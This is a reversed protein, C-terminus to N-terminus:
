LDVEAIAAVLATTVTVDIRPRLAGLRHALLRDLRHECEQVPMRHAREIDGTTRGLHVGLKTTQRALTPTPASLHDIAAVQRDERFGTM